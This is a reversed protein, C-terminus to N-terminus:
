VCGVSGWTWRGDGTVGFRGGSKKIGENKRESECVRGALHVVLLGQGEDVLEGGTLVGVV